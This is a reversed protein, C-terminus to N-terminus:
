WWGGLFEGDEWISAWSGNFLLERSGVEGEKWERAVIMREIDIFKVVRQYRIYTIYRM